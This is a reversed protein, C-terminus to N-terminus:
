VSRLNLDSVNEKSDAGEEAAQIYSEFKAQPAFHGGDGVFSPNKEKV